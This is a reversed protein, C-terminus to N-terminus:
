KTKSQKSKLLFEVTEKLVRNSVPKTILLDAGSAIATERMKTQAHATLCLIPTGTFSPIEKLDKILELGTKAGNLSIDVIIINFINKSYKEYFEEASDCIFMEFDARFIRRMLKISLDDDEVILM